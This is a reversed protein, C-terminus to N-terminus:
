SITALRLDSKLLHSIGSLRGLVESDPLSTLVVQTLPHLWRDIRTYLTEIWESNM